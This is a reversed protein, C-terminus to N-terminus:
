TRPLERCAADCSLVCLTLYSRAVLLRTPVHRLRTACEAPASHDLADDLGPTVHSYPDLTLSMSSYHGMLEPVCKLHVNRSLLLVADPHGSM